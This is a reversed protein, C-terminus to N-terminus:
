DLAHEAVLRARQVLGPAAFHPPPAREATTVLKYRLSRGLSNGATTAVRYGQQSLEDEAEFGVYLITLSFATFTFMILFALIWLEVHSHHVRNCRPCPSTNSPLELAFAVQEERPANSQQSTLDSTDTSNQRSM